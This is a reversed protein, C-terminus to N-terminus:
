LPYNGLTASGAPFRRAAAPVEPARRAPPARQDRQRAPPRPRWVRQRRRQQRDSRRWNLWRAPTQCPRPLFSSRPKVCVARLTQQAAPAAEGARRRVGCRVCGWPGWGGLPGGVWAHMGVRHPSAAVFEGMEDESGPEPLGPARDAADCALVSQVEVGSAMGDEPAPVLPSPIAPELPEAPHM